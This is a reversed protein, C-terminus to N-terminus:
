ALAHLNVRPRLTWNGPSKEKRAQIAEAVLTALMNSVSRNEKDALQRADELVAEPIVLQFRARGGKPGRKKADENAM